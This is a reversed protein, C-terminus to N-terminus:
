PNKDQYSRHSPNDLPYEPGFQHSIYLMYLSISTDRDPPVVGGERNYRDFYKHRRDQHHWLTRNYRNLQNYVIIRLLLAKHQMIDVDNCMPYGNHDDYAISEISAM